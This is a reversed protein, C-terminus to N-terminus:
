GVVGIITKGGVVKDGVAVCVNVQEPVYVNVQSGFRILGLKQGAQISDGPKVWCVIRRAILGAIQKVMIRQGSLSGGAEIFIQNQENEVAARPDRADWFKGNRYSIGEVRGTVPARQIHGDFVSLFIRIVKAPKDLGEGQVRAIETVRGDAPALVAAPDQPIQRPLDRFFCACAVAAAGFFWEGATGIWGIWPKAWSFVAAMIVCGFIFPFGEKAIM